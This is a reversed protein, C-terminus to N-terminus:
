LEGGDSATENDDAERQAILHSIAQADRDGVITEIVSRCCGIGGCYPHHMPRVQCGPAHGPEQRNGCTCGDQRARRHLRTM